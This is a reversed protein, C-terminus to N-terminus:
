PVLAGPHDSAWRVLTDFAMPAAIGDGRVATAGNRALWRAHERDRVRAAVVVPALVSAVALGALTHVDVGADVTVFDLLGNAVDFPAGATRWAGVGVAAGLVRLRRAFSEVDHPQEADGVIEIWIQRAAARGAFGRALAELVADTRAEVILHIPIAPAMPDRGRCAEAVRDIAWLELRERARRDSESALFRGPSAGAAPGPDRWVSSAHAGCVAGTQVDVVPQYVMALLTGPDCADLQARLRAREALVRGASERYWHPQRDGDSAAALAAAGAREILDEADVGDEPCIAVGASGPAGAANAAALLRQAAPYAEAEGADLGVLVLFAGDGAYGLHDNARVERRLRRAIAERADQVSLVGPTEVVLYVVAFRRRMRRADHVLQHLREVTQALDPLGAPAAYSVGRDALAYACSATIARAVEVSAATAESWRLALREARHPAIRAVYTDASILEDELVRRAREFLRQLTAAASGPAAALIREEDFVIARQAGALPAALSLTARLRLAPDRVHELASTWRRVLDPMRRADPESRVTPLTFTHM